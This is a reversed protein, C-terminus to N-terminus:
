PCISCRGAAVLEITHMVDYARRSTAFSTVVFNDASVIRLLAGDGAADGRALM